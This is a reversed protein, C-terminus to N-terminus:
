QKLIELCILMETSNKMIEIEYKTNKQQIKSFLQGPPPAKSRNKQGLPRPKESERHGLPSFNAGEFFNGPSNDLPITLSPISQYMIFLGSDFYLQNTILLHFSIIM